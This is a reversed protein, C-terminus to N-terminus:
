QSGLLMWVVRCVCLVKIIMKQKRERKTPLHLVCHLTTDVGVFKSCTKMYTNIYSVRFSFRDINKGM